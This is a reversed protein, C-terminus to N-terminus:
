EAYLVQPPVQHLFRHVSDQEGVQPDVFSTRDATNQGDSVLSVTLCGEARARESAGDCALAVGSDPRKRLKLISLISSVFFPPAYCKTARPLCSPFLPGSSALGAACRHKPM